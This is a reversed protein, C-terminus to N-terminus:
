LEGSRGSRMLRGCDELTECRCRSSSKLLGQMDVIGKAWTGSTTLIATPTAKKFEQTNISSNTM